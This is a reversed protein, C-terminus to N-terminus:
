AAFQRLPADPLWPEAPADHDQRERSPWRRRRRIRASQPELMLVALQTLAAASSLEHLDDIILVVVKAREALDAVIADVM